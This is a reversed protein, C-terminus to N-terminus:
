QKQALLGIIAIISLLGIIPRSEIMAIIPSSEIEIMETVPSSKIAPSSQTMAIM